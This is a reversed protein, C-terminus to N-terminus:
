VHNAVSCRTLSSHCKSKPLAAFSLRPMNRSGMEIDDRVPRLVLDPLSFSRGDWFLRGNRSFISPTNRHTLENNTGPSFRLNDTFANEQKHCSGCSVIRNVSLEKDYFLVKGLAALYDNDSLPFDELYEPLRPVEASDSMTHNIPEKRCFVFALVVFVLTGAFLFRRTNM